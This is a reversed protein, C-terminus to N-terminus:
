QGALGNTNGWTHGLGFFHGLEHTMVHSAYQVWTDQWPNVLTDNSDHSAYWNAYDPHVFSDFVAAVSKDDHQMM